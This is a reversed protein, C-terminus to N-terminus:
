KERSYTTTLVSFHQVTATYTPLQQIEPLPSVTTLIASHQIAACFVKGFPQIKVKLNTLHRSAPKADEILRKAENFTEETLERGNLDLELEFTGPVGQPKQNFWENFKCSYGFQSLVTRVAACTGKIQHQRFAKKILTRQLSPQWSNEWRDVSYQWALFPLFSNPVKDITSISKIQVPLLTNKATVQELKYEFKTRNPPLLTTM